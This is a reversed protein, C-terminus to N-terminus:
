LPIKRTFISELLETGVSNTLSFIRVILCIAIVNAVIRHSEAYLGTSSFLNSIFTGSCGFIPEAMYSENLEIQNSYHSVPFDSDSYFTTLSGVPSFFTIALLRTSHAEVRRVVSRLYIHHCGGLYDASNYHYALKPVDVGNKSAVARM